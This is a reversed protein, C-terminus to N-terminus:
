SLKKTLEKRLNEYKLKAKAELVSSFSIKYNTSESYFASGKMGSISRVPVYEYSESRIKGAIIEDYIKLTIERWHSANESEKLNQYSMTIMTAIKLVLETVDERDKGKLYERWGTEFFLFRTIETKNLLLMYINYSDRLHNIASYIEISPKRSTSSAEIAQQASTLHIKAMNIYMQKIEGKIDEFMSSIAKYFKYGLEIKKIFM